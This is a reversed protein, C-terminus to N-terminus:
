CWQQSRKHGKRWRCVFVFCITHKLITSVVIVIYRFYIKGLRFKLPSGELNSEFVKGTDKLKATYLISVQFLLVLSSVDVLNCLNLLIFIVSFFM